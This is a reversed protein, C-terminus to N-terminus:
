KNTAKKSEIRECLIDKGALRIKCEIGNISAKILAEQVQVEWPHGMDNVTYSRKNLVITEKTKKGNPWQCTIREGDELDIGDLRDIECWNSYTEVKKM